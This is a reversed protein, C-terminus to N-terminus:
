WGKNHYEGGFDDLYDNDSDDGATDDESPRPYETLRSVDQTTHRRPLNANGAPPINPNQMTAIGGCKQQREWLLHHRLSETLESALMNRRTTRPSHAMAARPPLAFPIATPALTANPSVSQQDTTAPANANVEVPAGAQPPQPQRDKSKSKRRMTLTVSEEDSEDSSSAIADEDGYGGAQQLLEKPPMNNMEQKQQQGQEQTAQSGLQVPQATNARRLTSTNKSDPNDPIVTVGSSGPEGDQPQQQQQQTGPIVVKQPRHMMMTLLSRHSALQLNKRSDVRRFLNKDEAPTRENRSSSASASDDVSDEWEDEDDIDSEDIVSSDDDLDSESDIASEFRDDEAEAAEDDSAVASSGISTHGQAQAQQQQAEVLARQRALAEAQIRAQREREQALLQAQTQQQQQQQMHQQQVMAHQRQQAEQQQVQQDQAFVVNKLPSPVNQSGGSASDSSGPRRLQGMPGSPRRLTPPQPQPQHQQSTQGQAGGSVLRDEYSNYSSNDEEVSSGGLMFMGGKKRADNQAAGNSTSHPQTNTIQPRTNENTRMQSLQQNRNKLHSPIRTMKPSSSSEGSSTNPVRVVQVPVPALRVRSGAHNTSKLSSDNTTVSGPRVAEQEPFSTTTRKLASKLAPKLKVPGDSKLRVDSKLPSTSPREAQATISQRAQAAPPLINPQAKATAATPSVPATRAATSKPSTMRSSPTPPLTTQRPPPPALQTASTYSSIRGPMFGRVVGARQTSDDSGNRTSPRGRTSRVSGVESAAQSPDYVAEEPIDEDEFGLDVSPGLGLGLGTSGSSSSTRNSPHLYTAEHRLTAASFDYPSFTRQTQPRLAPITASSEAREPSGLNDRHRISSPVQEPKAQQVQAQDTTPRPTPQRVQVQLNVPQALTTPKQAGPEKQPASSTTETATASRGRIKGENGSLWPELGKREKIKYVMKELGQSTIHKMRGRYLARGAQGHRAAAGAAESMNTNPTMM